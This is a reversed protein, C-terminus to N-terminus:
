RSFYHPRRFTVTGDTITRQNLISDRGGIDRGITKGGYTTLATVTVFTAMVSNDIGLGRGTALAMVRIMNSIVRLPVINVPIIRSARM